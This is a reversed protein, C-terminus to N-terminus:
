QINEPQKVSLVIESEDYDIYVTSGKEINGFLLIKSLKSKVSSSILHAVPRAGMKQKVSEDIFFSRATESLQLKIEKDSIQKEIEKTFKDVIKSMITEDLHNFNTILDLRNRFEPKFFMNTYEEQHNTQQTTFGISMKEQERAGLNSTMLVIANKFSVTKGTSSTLTGYDMVQLLIDSVDPHAKEIEDLLLVCRPNKEIANVLLGDGAAGEGHGVYGPPSGIFKSVSHKEQYESMDFRIFEMDLEKALQKALETKGTGSPGRLLASLKPKDAERLGASSILVYETIDDVATDQGYISSKLRDSLTELKKIENGDSSEIKIKTIKEIAEIINEKTVVMNDPNKEFLKKNAGSFDIIDIAKDPLFRNQIYRVSLEVAADLAENSYIVGHFKEYNKAVGRIIEKAEDVTPESVDVKTFRRSMAKDKEFYQRYEEWTTAGIVTIEGRALAPKLMNSADLAGNSSAGAGMLTHIEDIFLIADPISKLEDIINKVREEFDGRFKTGALLNTVDLSYVVKNKLSEPVNGEKIQKVLGEVIASKGTGAEGVLISNRKNKRAISRIIKIIEQERGVVNDINGNEYKTNLNECYKAIASDNDVKSKQSTSFTSNKNYNSSLTKNSKNVNEVKVDTTYNLIRGIDNVINLCIDNGMVKHMLVVPLSDHSKAFLSLLIHFTNTPTQTNEGLAMAHVLIEEVKATKIVTNKQISHNVYVHNNKEMYYVIADYVAGVIDLQTHSAFLKAVDDNDILALFLHETTAYNHEYNHAIGIMNNIVNHAAPEMM